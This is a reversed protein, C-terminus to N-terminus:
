KSRKITSCPLTGCVKGSKAIEENYGAVSKSEYAGYLLFSAGDSEYVYKIGKHDKPDKPLIELYVESELPDRGWECPILNMRLWKGSSSTVLQGFKDKLVDTDEGICAIIRGDGTSKPYSDYDAKYKEIASATNGMDLLRIFDRQRKLSNLYNLYSVFFIMLLILFIGFIEQRKIFKPILSTYM